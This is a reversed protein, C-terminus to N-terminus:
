KKETASLVDKIIAVYRATCVDKSANECVFDRGRSVTQQNEARELIAQVLLDANEPEVTVGAGSKELTRSLDSNTDFAAIIPTNCAMISWTKSPMGSTGVGKKCTIIAVDGISYVEPVRDQPLLGNIIVNSLKKEAVLQKAASFGVGGGFIVFQIDERDQLREAAQLVIDAGQAKGFNGAYLVIFKDKSIGFEGYLRNQDKLVPNVADVDIWNSVVTIKEEPVGKDMINQKISDSIVIIRDANKYTYNEIKRGIKWLLSGKKTLGTTVLSDPFVDQLNYVYPVNRKYRKSLKKKVMSCLVGQTPPTSGSVIVDIDKARSGKFYQIVNVLVYRIARLIPNKGERFMSFRRVIIKGDRMEEHKIRKYKKRIEKTIGRTPTPCFVDITFGANLYADELDKSLHSSSIQEPVYYSSLKLIKM